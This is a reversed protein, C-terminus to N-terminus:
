RTTFAQHVRLVDSVYMDVIQKMNLEHKQKNYVQITMKHKFSLSKWAMRTLWFIKVYNYWANEVM